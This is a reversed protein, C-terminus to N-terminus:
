YTEPGYGAYHNNAAVLAANLDKEYKQIEKLKDAWNLM